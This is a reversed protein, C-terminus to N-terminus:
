NFLEQMIMVVMTTPIKEVMNARARIMKLAEEMLTSLVEVTVSPVEQTLTSVM